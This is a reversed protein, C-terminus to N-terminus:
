IILTEQLFSSIKKHKNKDQCKNQKPKKEMNMVM